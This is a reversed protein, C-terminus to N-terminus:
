PDGGTQAPPPVTSATRQLTNFIADAAVQIAEASTSASLSATLSRKNLIAEFAAVAARLPQVVSSAGPGEPDFQEAVMEALETAQATDMYDLADLSALATAEDFIFGSGYATYPIGYHWTGVAGMWAPTGTAESWTGLRTSTVWALDAEATSTYSDTMTGEYADYRYLRSRLLSPMAAAEPGDELIPAALSDTYVAGVKGKPLNTKLTALINAKLSSIADARDQASFYTGANLTLVPKAPIPVGLQRTAGTIDVVRPAYSALGDVVTTRETNNDNSPWKAHYTVNSYALWGTTLDTNLAGLSNRALRYITKPNSPTITAVASVDLCPRFEAVGPVLNQATVAAAPPLDQDERAPILGGFEKLVIVAM